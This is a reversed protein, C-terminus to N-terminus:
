PLISGPNKSRPICHSGTLGRRVSLLITGHLQREDNLKPTAGAAVQRGYFCPTYVDLRPASLLIECTRLYTFRQVSRMEEIRGWMKLGIGPNPIMKNLIVIPTHHSNCGMLTGQHTSIQIQCATLYSMSLINRSRGGRM